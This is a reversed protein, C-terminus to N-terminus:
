LAAEISKRKTAKLAAHVGPGRRRDRVPDRRLQNRRGDAAEQAYEQAIMRQEVTPRADRIQLSRPCRGAARRRGTPSAEKVSDLVLADRIRLRVYFNSHRPM